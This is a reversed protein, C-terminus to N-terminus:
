AGRVIEKCKGDKAWFAEFRFKKRRAVKQECQVLIPCHDSGLTMGNTVTTNPWLSLWSDNVLGKDLRAEVFQGNQTGRWPFKPGNFGLDMIELKCMFEELYRPRNYQVEVGGSKEHDYLFENFDGGCIWPIIDPHSDVLGCSANIFHKSSDMVEGKVSDDWWLCLGGARILAVNFGNFYGMSRRVGAIRHDKM